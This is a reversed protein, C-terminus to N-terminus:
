LNEEKGTEAGRQAQPARLREILMVERRATRRVEKETDGTPEKGKVVEVLHPGLKGGQDDHGTSLRTCM